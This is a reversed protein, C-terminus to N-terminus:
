TERVSAQNDASFPPFMVVSMKGEIGFTLAADPLDHCSISFPFRYVFATGHAECAAPDETRWQYTGDNWQPSWMATGHSAEGSIDITVPQAGKAPMEKAKAMSHRTGQFSRGLIHWPDM